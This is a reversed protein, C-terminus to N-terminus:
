RIIGHGTRKYTFLASGPRSGIEVPLGKELLDSHAHTFLGRRYESTGLTLPRDVRCNRWVVDFHDLITLSGSPESPAANGFKAEVWNRMDVMEAPTASARGCTAILSMVVCGMMLATRM